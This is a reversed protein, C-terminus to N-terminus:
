VLSVEFISSLELLELSNKRSLLYPSGNLFKILGTKQVSKYKDIVQNWKGKAWHVAPPCRKTYCSKMASPRLKKNCKRDSLTHTVNSCYVQRSVAGLGCTRSCQFHVFSFNKLCFKFSIDLSSKRTQNLNLGFFLLENHDYSRRINNSFTNLYEVKSWETTKWKPCERLNCKSISAPKITKDCAIKGGNNRKLVGSVCSVSRRREGGGCTKSCQLFLNWFMSSVYLIGNRM